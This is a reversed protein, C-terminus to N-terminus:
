RARYLLEAAHYVSEKECNPCVRKEDAPSVNPRLLINFPDRHAQEVLASEIVTHTFVHGCELCRVVWSAM